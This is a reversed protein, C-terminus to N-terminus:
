PAFIRRYLDEGYATAQPAGPEMRFTRSGDAQRQARLCLVEARRAFAAAYGQLHTVAFVEIGRQLLADTIQRFIESGERDNTSAFSENSLLMAGPRLGDVIASMRALEEELKGSGLTDDEERKFHTYVQQRLPLRCSEACVFLGCQAMLQCQGVSRLFTTKGGQNAGTILCMPAADELTNGVVAAGSALALGADYLGQWSRGAQSVRPFCLPLGLASLKGHLNMAGLYFALERQLEETFAQLSDAAQAMACAVENIARDRRADLDKAGATDQEELTFSPLVLWHLESLGRARRRKRYGVGQLYPGFGASILLGAPDRIADELPRIQDIYDDSLERCLLASLERLGQSAFAEAQLVRRIAVLAELYIKLLDASSDYFSPLYAPDRHFWTEQRRRAAERCLQMMQCIPEPRALCDRLVDQRWLIDATSQLPADLLQRCVTRTLEEGDAMADLVLPLELDACRDAWAPDPAKAWLPDGAPSLLRVKM